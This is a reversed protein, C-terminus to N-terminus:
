QVLVVNHRRPYFAAPWRTHPDYRTRKFQEYEPGSYIKLMMVMPRGLQAATKRSTLLAGTLDAGTLDSDRLCTSFLNVERLSAAHLNATQLTAGVFKAKDLKAERFDAGWLNMSHFDVGQANARRLILGPWVALFDGQLSVGRLDADTLDTRELRADGLDAHALKAGRLSAETLTAQCLKAGQLNVGSLNAGTFDANQLIPGACTPEACTPTLWIRTPCSRMRSPAYPIKVGHLDAGTGWYKAVLYPRLGVGLLGVGGLVGAALIVALGWTVRNTNTKMTVEGPHARAAAPRLRRALPHARRIPGWASHSRGLSYGELLCWM